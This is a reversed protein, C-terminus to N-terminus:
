CTNPDVFRVSVFGLLNQTQTQPPLPETNLSAYIWPLNLGIIIFEIYINTEYPKAFCAGFNPSVLGFSLLSLDFHAETRFVLHFLVQKYM